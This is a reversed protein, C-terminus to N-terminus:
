KSWPATDTVGNAAPNSIENSPGGRLALIVATLLAVIAIAGIIIYLKTKSEPPPAPTYPAPAPNSYLIDPISAGDLGPASPVASSVLRPLMERARPDGFKEVLKACVRRAKDNQGLKELCMAVPWMVNKSNPFAKDLESLLKLAQEYEGEQFLTNAKKFKHKSEKGKM